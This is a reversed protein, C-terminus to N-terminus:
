FPNNTNPRRSSCPPSDIVANTGSLNHFSTSGSKGLRAAEGFPPRGWTDFRAQRVPMMKMRLLPTVQFMNGKSIPQPLPTVQQRRSRSQVWALTHGWTWRRNSRQKPFRPDIRNDRATISLAEIRATKPPAVGAGASRIPRFFAAFPMYNGIGLAHRQDHGGSRCILRIALAGHCQEVLQRGHSASSPSWSAFGLDKLSVRGVATRRDDLLNQFAVDPRKQRGVAIRFALVATAQAPCSVDDFSRQTPEPVEAADFQTVFAARFMKLGKM